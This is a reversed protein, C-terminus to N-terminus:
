YDFDTMFDASKYRRLKDAVNQTRPLGKAVSEQSKNPPRRQEWFGGFLYGITVSTTSIDIM